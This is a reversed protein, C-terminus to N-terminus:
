TYFGEDWTEITENYTFGADELAAVIREIADLKGIIKAESGNKITIYIIYGGGDGFNYHVRDATTETM